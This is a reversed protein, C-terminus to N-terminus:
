SLITRKLLWYGGALVVLASVVPSGYADFKEQRRLFFLIPLCVAAVVIQGFEVGLNFAFLPLALAAGTLGGGASKLAGAFGFGHILGFGFTLLWRRAPERGRLALNELGVYVISAAVLPEVIKPSLTVVDFAALALTISHAITFCTIIAAITAFRRCAIILGVLFLLHDYGILIHDVGLRLFTSFPPSVVAPPPANAAPVVGAAPIPLEFFPQDFSIPAWGLKTEQGSFVVLTGTHGDVLYLLYNGQIRLPGTAPRIFALRYEVDDEGAIKVATSSLGLPQGAASLEFLHPAAETLAPVYNGFNEPTIPPLVNGEPILRLASARSLLFVLEIRDDRVYADTWSSFIDHARAPPLSLFFFV